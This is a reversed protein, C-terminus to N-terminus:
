NIGNWWMSAALFWDHPILLVALLFVLLFVLVMKDMVPDEAWEEEQVTTVEPEKETSPPRERASTSKGSQKKKGM